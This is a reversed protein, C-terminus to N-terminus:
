GSDSGSGSSSRRCSSCGCNMKSSWKQSGCCGCCSDRNTSCVYWFWANSKESFMLPSFRWDHKWDHDLVTSTPAISQTCEARVSSHFHGLLPRVKDKMSATRNMRRVSVMPSQIDKQKNTRNEYQM